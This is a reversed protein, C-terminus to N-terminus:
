GTALADVERHFATDADIGMSAFAGEIELSVFGHLRTWTIVGRYLAEPDGPDREHRLAWERLQRTLSKPLKEAQPSPDPPGISTSFPRWRAM